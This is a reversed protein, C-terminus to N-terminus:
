RGSVNLTFTYELHAAKIDTILKLALSDYQVYACRALESVFVKEERNLAQHGGRRLKAAIWRSKQTIPNVAETHM